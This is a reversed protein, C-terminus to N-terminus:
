LSRQIRDLTEIVAARLAKNTKQEPISDYIGCCEIRQVWRGYAKVGVRHPLSDIDFTASLWKNTKVNAVIQDALEQPTM